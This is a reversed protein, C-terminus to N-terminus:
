QEDLYGEPINISMQERELKQKKEIEEAAKEPDDIFPLQGLLTKLPVIDRLESAMQAKELENVPLARTFQM